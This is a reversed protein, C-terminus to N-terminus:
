KNKRSKKRFYKRLLFSHKLGEMDEDLGKSAKKLNLVSQQVNAALTTDTLLMNVTGNGNNVHQVTLSLQNSVANLKNSTEKLSAMTSALNHGLVTDNLLEAATGKGHQILATIDQLTQSVQAVKGTVLRLNSFSTKLDFAADTDKYLMQLAGNKNNLDSTLIKLNETIMRINENSGSLTQLVQETNIPNHTQLYAYNRITIGGPKGTIINVLKDGMLGDSAITAVATTTIFMRKSDEIQMDVQVTSDDIINVTKVIGVKVGNYRVNSGIKLGTANTFKASLPFTNKFMESKAGVLFIGIIFLVIGVVVFLGLLINRKVSKDM